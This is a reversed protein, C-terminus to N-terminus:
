LSDTPNVKRNKITRKNIILAITIILVVFVLIYISPIEGDTVSTVIGGDRILWNFNNIIALKADKAASSYKSSGADFTVNFRLSLQSWGILLQDYNSTSLAVGYFMYDMNKVNSVNWNGLPQDFSPAFCFMFRMTNVSPVDWNGLPQNFSSAFYFIYDMNTVNSVNWDGIPQNFSSSDTFMYSMDNVSSVDWDGLYQNFSSAGHFMFRMTTVRSVNWNDISINFSSAGYFMFDMNTVKSTDWNNMNGNSSLSPCNRFASHLSTTGTLNIDDTATLALNSCGSFYKESNGLQLCGWQQIQLIKLKDGGFGFRWGIITGMISITYVGESNYTHIATPQDWNIITDNNMDGWEVTFNYTGSSELPLCVQNSSSSGESIKTTDWVSIFEKPNSAVPNHSDLDTTARKLEYFPYEHTSISLSISLLVISVVCLKTLKFKKLSIM